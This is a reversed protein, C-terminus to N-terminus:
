IEKEILMASKQCHSPLMRVEPFAHMFDRLMRITKLYNTTDHLTMAIRSPLENKTIARIDWVADAIYFVTGLNASRLMVGYHGRAHGSLCIMTITGDGFIDHGYPLHEQFEWSLRSPSVPHYRDLFDSPLLEPIYGHLLSKLSTKQHQEIWERLEAAAWISPAKFRSVGAIHDAHLHTLVIHQPEAKLINQCYDAVSQHRGTKMQTTWRYMCAPFRKTVHIFQSDHGTDLLVPGHQPHQAILSYVPVNIRRFSSRTHILNGLVRCQGSQILKVNM